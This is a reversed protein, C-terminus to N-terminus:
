RVGTLIAMRLFEVPSGQHDLPYSDVQWHLPCLNSGQELFIGHAAPYSLGHVVVIFAVHGLAWARCSPFGGWHSSAQPSCSFLLGQEGYSSFAWVFVWPLWFYIFLHPIKKLKLFFRCVIIAPQPTSFLFSEQVTPPIYISIAVISFLTSTGKFVLFLVVM